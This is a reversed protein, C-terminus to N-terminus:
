NKVISWQENTTFIKCALCTVLKENKKERNRTWQVLFRRSLCFYIVLHLLSTKTLLEQIVPIKKKKIVVKMSFALKM